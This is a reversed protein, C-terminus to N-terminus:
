QPAKRNPFPIVKAASKRKKGRKKGGTPATMTALRHSVILNLIEEPTTHMGAALVKAAAYLKKMKM